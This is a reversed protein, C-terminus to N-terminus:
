RKALVFVFMFMILVNIFYMAEALGVVILMLTFLNGRAEPQRVVGAIVQSGALADGVSAGLAGGGVAMGGGIMAGALQIAQQTTDAM